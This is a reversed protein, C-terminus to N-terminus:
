PRARGGTLAVFAHWAPKPRFREGERFFGVSDCFSCSGAQDKWSFWYVQKLNLRARNELLYGYSARLQKVQGRPGQEFAVQQFNNQSGWGMETVYFPVRDRNELTVQHLAETMEELDEAFAAYPHLAVGDFYSKIGPVRYVTELFKAADMGKPGSANPEGFLGSLIVKAGPDIRKIAPTSLKLLKVYRQPSAPYAFYFYNAENWVQWSRIPLPRAIEPVYQVGVGGPAHETWFSGGPGYRRVAAELFMAWAQRGRANNVPLTTYKASIWPPTGYVFPLVRLGHRAAVEVVPDFVAWNYGGKRTGQVALWPLPWRVTEIGGAKMYLADEDTLTGQPDIGFFGKPPPVPPKAAGASQGVVLALLLCSCLAVAALLRKM